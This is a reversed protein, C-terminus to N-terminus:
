ARPPRYLQDRAPQPPRLERPRIFDITTVFDFPEALAAMVAVSAGHTCHCDPCGPPCDAGGDACDADEHAQHDVYAVADSAAHGLGSLQLTFAIVLAHLLGRV